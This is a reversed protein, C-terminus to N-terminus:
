ASHGVPHTSLINTPIFYQLVNPNLDKVLTVPHCIIPLIKAIAMLLTSYSTLTLPGASLQLQGTSVPPLNDTRIRAQRLIKRIASFFRTRRKVNFVPFFRSRPLWGTNPFDSALYELLFGSISPEDPMLVPTAPNPLNLGFKVRVNNFQDFSRNGALFELSSQM